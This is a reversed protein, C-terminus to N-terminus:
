VTMAGYSSADQVGIAIPDSREQRWTNTLYTDCEKCVHDKKNHKIM